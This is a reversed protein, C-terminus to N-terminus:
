LDVLQSSRLQKRKCKDVIIYSFDVGVKVFGARILIFGYFGINIM